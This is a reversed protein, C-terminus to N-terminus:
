SRVLLTEVLAGKRADNIRISARYAKDDPKDNVDAQYYGNGCVTNCASWPIVIGYTKEIYTRARVYNSFTAEM